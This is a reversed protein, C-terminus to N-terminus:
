PQVLAWTGLEDAGEVVALCMEKPNVLDITVCGVVDLLPRLYRLGGVLAAQEATYPGCPPLDSVVSECRRISRYRERQKSLGLVDLATLGSDPELIREVQSRLLSGYDHDSRFLRRGLTPCVAVERSGLGDLIGLLEQWRASTELTEWPATEHLGVVHLNIRRTTVDDRTRRTRVVLYCSYAVTDLLGCFAFSMSFSRKRAVREVLLSRVDTGTLPHAADPVRGLPGLGGRVYLCLTVRADAVLGRATRTVEEQREPTDLPRRCRRSVREYGLPEYSVTSYMLSFLAAAQAVRPMEVDKVDELAEDAAGRVHFTGPVLSLGLIGEVGCGLPLLAADMFTRVTQRYHKSCYRRDSRRGKGTRYELVDLGLCREVLVDDTTRLARRLRNWEAEGDPPPIGEEQRALNTIRVGPRGDEGVLRLEYSLTEHNGPTMLTVRMVDCHSPSEAALRTRYVVYSHLERGSIGLAHVKQGEVPLTEARVRRSLHGVRSLVGPLSYLIRRVDLPLAGLHGLGAEM